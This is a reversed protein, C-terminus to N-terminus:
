DRPIVRPIILQQHFQQHDVADNHDRCDCRDADSIM